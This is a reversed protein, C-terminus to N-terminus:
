DGDIHRQLLPPLDVGKGSPDTISQTVSAVAQDALAGPGGGARLIDQLEKKSCSTLFVPLCLPLRRPRRSPLRLRGASNFHFLCRRFVLFPCIRARQYNILLIRLLLFLIPFFCSQFVPFRQIRPLIFFIPCVCIRLFFSSQFLYNRLREVPPDQPKERRFIFLM